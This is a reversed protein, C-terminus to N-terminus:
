SKISQKIEDEFTKLRGNNNVYKKLFGEYMKFDSMHNGEERYTVHNCMTHALEHLLLSKINKWSDLNGKDQITLLIHRLGARINIDEKDRFELGDPEVLKVIYKPKNLGNFTRNPPIEQITCPTIIFLIIGNYKPDWNNIQGSNISNILEEKLIYIYEQILALISYVRDKLKCNRVFFLNYKIMKPVGENIDWKHKMRENIQIIHKPHHEYYFSDILSYDFM